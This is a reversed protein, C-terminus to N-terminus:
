HDSIYESNALVIGQLNESILLELWEEIAEEISRSISSDENVILGLVLDVITALDLVIATVFFEEYSISFLDLELAFAKVKHSGGLRSLADADVTGVVIFDQETLDGLVGDGRQVGDDVVDVHWEYTSKLSSFPAGALWLLLFLEGGDEALESILELFRELTQCRVDSKIWIISLILVVGSVNV